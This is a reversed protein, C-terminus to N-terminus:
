PKCGFNVHPVICDALFRDDLLKRIWFRGDAEWITYRLEDSYLVHCFQELCWHTITSINIGSVDQFEQRITEDLDMSDAKLIRKLLRHDRDVLRCLRDSQSQVSISGAFKWKVIVHYATSCPVGLVASIERVSKGGFHCGIVEGREARTKRGNHKRAFFFFSSGAKGFEVETSRDAFLMNLSSFAFRIVWVTCKGLLWITQPLMDLLPVRRNFVMLPITSTDTEVSM